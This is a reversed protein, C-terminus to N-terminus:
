KSKLPYIMRFEALHFSMCDVPKNSLGPSIKIYVEKGKIQIGFEYYDPKNADYTDNHPGSYYDETKINLLYEIRKAPTIDLEVLTELNKDRPRFAVQFFRIKEKLDKLFLQIEQETIM